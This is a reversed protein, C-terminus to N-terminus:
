TPTGAGVGTPSAPTASTASSGPTFAPLSREPVVTYHRGTPSTWELAGSHATDTLPRVRWGGHHKVTHHGRCLPALNALATHGGDDWAVTHDLDCREASVGCGPAMCRAARWRALRQLAPPPRYRERGVSLVAGTDPHTLVRMWGDTGGCLERARQIPIPGVGDVVAAGCDPLAADLLALAPVTVVVTARIGRAADPHAACTGDILLDGLVDARAQDRTRDDRADPDGAVVTKAIATLRAHIAHAEVAPLYATLWAMGDDAPEIFVRREQLAREHRDPLTQVRVQDILARLRRRFTGVPEAEALEIARPLVTDSEAPTLPDLLDILVQVHRQTVRAAALADLAAPYRTELVHAHAILQGAAQETIRLAAALELRIAREAVDVLGRGTADALAERRYAAVRRYREAAFVAVMADADCILAVADPPTWGPDCPFPDDDPADAGGPSGPSSHGDVVKM